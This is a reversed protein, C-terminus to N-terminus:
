FDTFESLILPPIMSKCHHIKHGIFQVEVFLGHQPCESIVLHRTPQQVLQARM